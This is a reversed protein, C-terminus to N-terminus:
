IDIYTAISTGLSEMKTTTTKLRELISLHKEEKM